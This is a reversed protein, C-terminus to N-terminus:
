IRADRPPRRQPSQQRWAGTDESRRRSIEGQIDILFSEGADLRQDRGHGGVQCSEGGVTALEDEVVPIAIGPERREISEIVVLVHSGGVAPEFSYILPALKIKNRPHGM